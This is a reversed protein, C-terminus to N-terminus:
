AGVSIPQLNKFILRSFVTLCRVVRRKRRRQTLLLSVLNHLGGSKRDVPKKVESLRDPEVVAARASLGMLPKGSGRARMSLAFSRSELSRRANKCATKQDDFARPRTPGPRYAQEVPRHWSRRLGAECLRSAHGMPEVNGCRLGITRVSCVLIHPERCGLM